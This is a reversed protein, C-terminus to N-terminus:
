CFVHLRSQTYDACLVQSGYVAVGNPRDLLREGTGPDAAGFALIADGTHKNFALVRRGFRDSAYVRDHSVCLRNVHSFEGPGVGHSGIQRRFAWTASDFVLIRSAERDSVYVSGDVEDLVVDCPCALSGGGAEPPLAPGLVHAVKGTRKDLFVVRSNSSDTVGVLKDGVAVALPDRMRADQGLVRVLRGTRKELVSVRGADREAVYAFAEDVAVGYPSRFAVESHGGGYVVVVAGGRSLDLVQIRHNDGDAVWLLDGDVALSGPGDFCGPLAGKCGLTGAHVGLLPPHVRAYFTPGGVVAVPGGKEVMVVGMDEEEIAEEVVSQQRARQPSDDLAAPAQPRMSPRRHGTITVRLYRPPAFADAGLASPCCSAHSAIGTGLRLLGGLSLGMAPSLSSSAPQQQQQPQLQLPRRGSVSEEDFCESLSPTYTVEYTGDRRDRVTPVVVVAVAAAGEGDDDGGGGDATAGTGVVEEQIAIVFDDEGGRSRRRGDPGFATLVFSATQGLVAGQLGPGRATVYGATLGVGGEMEADRLAGHCGNAGGGGAAVANHDFLPRDVELAGAKDIVIAVLREVPWDGWRVELSSPPPLTATSSASRHPLLLAQEFAQRAQPAADMLALFYGKERLARLEWLRKNVDAQRGAAAEEEAECPEQVQELWVRDAEALLEGRRRQAAAILVDFHRTIERRAGEHAALLRARRDRVCGVRAQVQQLAREGLELAETAERQGRGQFAEDLGKMDHGRHRELFCKPCAGVGCDECWLELMGLPHATCRPISQPPVGGTLRLANELLQQLAFNRSVGGGGITAGIGGERQEAHHPHNPRYHFRVKCSPCRPPLGAGDAQRVLQQLDHLCITHGCGGLIM